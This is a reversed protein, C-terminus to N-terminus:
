EPKRAIELLKQALQEREYESTKDIAHVVDPVKGMTRSLVWEVRNQDAKAGAMKLVRLVILEIMPTKPDQEIRDLEEKPLYMFKNAIRQFEAATMKRAEKDDRTLLEKGHNIRHGKQFGKVGKPM